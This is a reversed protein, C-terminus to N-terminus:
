RRRYQATHLRPCRSNRPVCATDRVLIEAPRAAKIEDHFVVLDRAPVKKQLLITDSEAAAPATARGRAHTSFPRAAAGTISLSLRKFRWRHRAQAGAHLRPRRREDRLRARLRRFRHVADARSWLCARPNFLFSLRRWNKLSAAAAHVPASAAAAGTHVLTGAACCRSAKSVASPRDNVGLRHQM